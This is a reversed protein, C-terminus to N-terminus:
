AAGVEKRFQSLFDLMFQHRENALERGAKTKMRDRLLLLKQDFHELTSARNSLYDERTSITQSNSRPDFIPRGHKGGFAFARAIGVAGIADLRDADQVVRQELTLEEDGSITDRFSIGTITEFIREIRELELGLGELFERVEARTNEEEGMKYDVVDHLLAGLEVLEIDAGEAAGLTRATNLVREVHFWDHAADAAELREKAWASVRAVLEGKPAAEM